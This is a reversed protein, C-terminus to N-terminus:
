KKGVTAWPGQFVWLPQCITEFADLSLIADSGVETNQKPANATGSGGDDIAHANSLVIIKSEVDYETLVGAYAYRALIIYIPQGKFKKLIAELKM